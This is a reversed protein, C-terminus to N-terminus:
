RKRSASGKGAPEPKEPQMGPHGPDRKFHDSRSYSLTAPGAATKDRRAKPKAVPSSAYVSHVDALSLPKVPSKM